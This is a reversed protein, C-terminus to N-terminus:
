FEIELKDGEYIPIANERALAEELSKYASHRIKERYLLAVKCAGVPVNFWVAGGDRRMVAILPRSAGANVKAKM